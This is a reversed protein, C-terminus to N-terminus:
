PDRIEMMAMMSFDSHEATHCHFVFMGAFNSFYPRIVAVGPQGGSAAPVNVTDMWGREAPHLQQGNISRIRFHADHLHMPHPHTSHNIFRWDETTHRWPRIDIEEEDFPKGNITWLGDTQELTIERLRQPSPIPEPWRLQKPIRFEERGGGGEVDFRMVARTSATASPHTNRLILQSGPRFQRFDVLVDARNGPVITIANRGYPKDLLATDGTIQHMTRGNGLVLRYERANSANLFRLRYIRRKVRMRPNIAGNVLITDGFFGDSVGTPYHFAGDPRFSRDAIALPVDYEGQPLGLNAESPSEIIHFGLLGYNLHPGVLGHTHDHYWLTAEPQDNPYEYTREGGPSIHYEHLAGDSEEPQHGGHLHVSTTASLDNTQKVEIPRGRRARITPGPFQGNYGFIPTPDMGNLIEAEGDEMTIEYRDVGGSTDVPQLVPMQPLDVQFPAFASEAESRRVPGPKGSPASTLKAAGGLSCVLAAGAAGHILVERRSLLKAGPDRRM